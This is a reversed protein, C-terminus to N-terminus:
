RTDLVSTLWQGGSVRSSSHLVRFSHVATAKTGKIQLQLRYVVVANKWLARVTPYSGLVWISITKSSVPREVGGASEMVM